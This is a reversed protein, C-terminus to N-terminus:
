TTERTPAPSPPSGCGEFWAGCSCRHPMDHGPAETCVCTEGDLKWIPGVWWGCEADAYYPKV